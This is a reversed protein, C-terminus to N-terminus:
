KASSISAQAASASASSRSNRSPAGASSASASPRRRDLRQRAVELAPQQPQLADIRRSAAADAARRRAVAREADVAPENGIRWPACSSRGTPLRQSGLAPSATSGRREADGRAARARLQLMLREDGDCRSFSSFDTRTSARGSGDPARLGCGHGELVENELQGREPGRAAAQDLLREVELDAGAGRMGLRQEAHEARLGPVDGVHLRRPPGVVAAEALIRVPQELMVLHLHDELRRRVFHLLDIEVAELGAADVRPLVVDAELLVVPLRRREAGPADAPLHHEVALLDRLEGVELLDAADVQRRDDASIM